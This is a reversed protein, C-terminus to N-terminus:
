KRQLRSSMASLLRQANAHAETDSVLQHEGLLNEADFCYGMKDALRTIAVVYRQVHAGDVCFYYPANGETLQASVHRVALCYPCRLTTTTTDVGSQLTYGTM